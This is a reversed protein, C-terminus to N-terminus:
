KKITGNIAFGVNMKNLPLLTDQDSLDISILKKTSKCSEIVSSRVIVELLSTVIAKLEFFLFPIM